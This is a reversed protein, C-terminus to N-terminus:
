ILLCKIIIMIRFKSWDPDARSPDPKFHEAELANPIVSVISPDLQARLM